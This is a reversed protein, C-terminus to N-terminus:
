LTVYNVRIINYNDLCFYIITSTAPIFPQGKHAGQPAGPRRGGHLKMEAVRTAQGEECWRGRRRGGGWGGQEQHRVRAVVRHVDHIDHAPGM